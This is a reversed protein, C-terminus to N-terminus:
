PVDQHFAVRGANRQQRFEGDDREAAEHEPEEEEAPEAAVEVVVELGRACV